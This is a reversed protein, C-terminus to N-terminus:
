LYASYLPRRGKKGRGRRVHFAAREVRGRIPAARHAPPRIDTRARRRGHRDLPLAPSAPM